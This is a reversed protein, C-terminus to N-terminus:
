KSILHVDLLDDGKINNNFYSYVKRKEFKRCIPELLEEPLQQNSM